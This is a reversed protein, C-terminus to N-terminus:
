VIHSPEKTPRKQVVVVPAPDSGKFPKPSIQQPISEVRSNRWKPSFCGIEGFFYSIKESPNFINFGGVNFLHFYVVLSILSSKKASNNGATLLHCGVSRTSEMDRVASNM